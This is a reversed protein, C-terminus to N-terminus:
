PRGSRPMSVPMAQQAQTGPQPSQDIRQEDRMELGVIKWAGDRAAV